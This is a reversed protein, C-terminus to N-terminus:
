VDVYRGILEVTSGVTRFNEPTLDDDSFEISYSVELERILRFLLLSSVGLDSLRDAPSIERVPGGPREDGNLDVVRDIIRQLEGAVRSDLDAM